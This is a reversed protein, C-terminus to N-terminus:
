CTQSGAEETLARGQFVKRLMVEVKRYDSKGAHRAMDVVTRQEEDTMRVLDAENTGRQVVRGLWTMGNKWDKVARTRDYAYYQLSLAYEQLSRALIRGARM